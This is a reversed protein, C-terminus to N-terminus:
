GPKLRKRIVVGYRSLVAGLMVLAAGALLHRGAPENFYWAAFLTSVLPLFFSAAGLFVINGKQMAMDWLFYSLSIVFVTYFILPFIVSFSWRPQAGFIISLIIFLIGAALQFLPVGSAGNAPAFRRALNSYIAWCVASGAMLAFAAANERIAKMFLGFSVKGAMCIMVGLFAIVLGPFLFYWRPRYHLLFVSFLVILGPWMYNVIGLQLVVQRDGAMALAPVYGATYVVFFVGCCILYPWSPPSLARIKRYRCFEVCLSILGGLGFSVAVLTVPGLAESIARTFAVSTAWFVLAVLGFFTYNFPRM